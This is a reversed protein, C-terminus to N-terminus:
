TVEVAAEVEAPPSPVRAHGGGRWVFLAGGGARRAPRAFCVRAVGCTTHIVMVREQRRQAASGRLLQVLIWAQVVFRVLLRPHTGAMVAWGAGGIGWGHVHRPM